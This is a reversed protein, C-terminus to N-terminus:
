RREDDACQVTAVIVGAAPQDIGDGEQVGAQGQGIVRRHGIDAGGATPSHQHHMDIAIAEDVADFACAEWEGGVDEIVFYQEAM